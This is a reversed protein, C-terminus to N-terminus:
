NKISKEKEKMDRMTEGSDEDTSSVQSRIRLTDCSERKWSGEKLVTASGEVNSVVRGVSSVNRAYYM